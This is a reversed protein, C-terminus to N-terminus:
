TIKGLLPNRERLLHWVYGESTATQVHVFNPEYAMGTGVILFTDSGTNTNELDEVVWVFVEWGQVDFHVLQKYNELKLLKGIELPGLKIIRNM